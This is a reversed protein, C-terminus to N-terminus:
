DEPKQRLFLWERNVAADLASADAFGARAAYDAIDDPALRGLRTEFYWLRLTPGRLGAPASSDPQVPAAIAAEKRVARDALDPYAGSLRLEDILRAEIARGARARLAEIAVEEDILAELAQANLDNAAMWRDLDARAYLGFQERLRKLAARAEDRSLKNPRAAGSAAVMRMLAKAEVQGYAEPGQLRLEDLILRDKPSPASASAESRAVFADWLHTWEFHFAPSAPESTAPTESMAALMELGDLRKQDVRGEPLWDALAALEPGGVGHAADDALLAPRNRDAFFLAKAFAELARRSQAGIINKAEALALTARINVMAESAPPFGIEAPGHVVAVEDDDELVGGRFAEFIRGIGRMGFEHLEAARLAGMSAAGFLPVGESIAWLIEKHWVSPAGSFYGDIIGIARPRRLAARYVDGQAVPPLAIFDGAAAIEEPRLTPGVFIITTM